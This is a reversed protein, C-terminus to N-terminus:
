IPHRRTEEVLRVKNRIAAYSDVEDKAMALLDTLRNRLPNVFRSPELPPFANSVESQEMIRTEDEFSRPCPFITTSTQVDDSELVSCQLTKDSISQSIHNPSRYDTQQCDNDINIHQESEFSAASRREFRFLLNFDKQSSSITPAPVRHDTLHRERQSTALVEERIDQLCKKLFNNEDELTVITQQLNAKEERLLLKEELDKAQVKQKLAEVHLQSKKENQWHLLIRNREKRLLGFRVHLNQFASILLDSESLTRNHIQPTSPSEQPHLDDFAPENVLKARSESTTIKLIQPTQPSEPIIRDLFRDNINTSCATCFWEGEPMVYQGGDGVIGSLVFLCVVEIM